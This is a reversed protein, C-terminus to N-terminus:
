SFREVVQITSSLFGIFKTLQLLTIFHSRLLNQCIKAVKQAKETILSLTIKVLDIEMGLFKTKQSLAFNIETNKNDLGFEALSIHSHRLENDSQDQNKEPTLNSNEIAKYVGTICSMCDTSLIKAM